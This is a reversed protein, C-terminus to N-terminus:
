QIANDEQSNQLLERDQKLPHAKIATRYAHLNMLLEAEANSLHCSNIIEEKEGGMELICLAHQYGGDNDRKNELAQIQNDMSVLQRDIETMQKAFALDANVLVTHNRHLQKIEQSIAQIQQKVEEISRYYRIISFILLCLLAMLLAIIM